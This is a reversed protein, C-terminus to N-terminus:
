HFIRKESKQYLYKFNVQIIIQYPKLYVWELFDLFFFSFIMESIWRLSQFFLIKLNEKKQEFIIKLINKEMM